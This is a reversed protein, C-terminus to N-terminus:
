RWFLRCEDDLETMSQAHSGTTLWLSLRRGGQGPGVDGKSGVISRKRRARLSMGMAPASDGGWSGVASSFFLDRGDRVNADRRAKKRRGSLNFPLELMETGSPTTMKNGQMTTMRM